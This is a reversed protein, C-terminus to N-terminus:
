YNITRLFRARTVQMTYGGNPNDPLGSLGPRNLGGKGGTQHRTVGPWGGAALALGLSYLPAVRM